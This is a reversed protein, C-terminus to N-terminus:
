PATVTLTLADGEFWGTSAEGYIWLTYIGPVAAASATFTLVSSNGTTPNPAFAATVGPPMTGHFDGIDVWLTVAGTFNNRVVNVTTTGPAGGKALSLTPASWTLIFPAVTITLTLPVTRDTLGSAVGRVLLNAYTGALAHGAVFLWMDSSSGSIPSVPSFYASVGTPLNEVSLTVNGAFSIRALRVTATPSWAGQAISLTPASLSLAYGPVAAAGVALTLVSSNAAPWSAPDFSATIGTPLGTVYLGVGGLHTLRTINVTTTPTSAGQVISLAAASLSISFGLDMDITLTFTRTVESVGSGTGHVM